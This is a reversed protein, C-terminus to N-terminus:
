LRGLISKSINAKDTVFHKSFMYAVRLVWLKRDEKPHLRVVKQNRTAM